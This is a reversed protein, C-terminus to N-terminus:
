FDASGFDYGLMIEPKASGTGAGGESWSTFGLMCYPAFQYSSSFAFVSRDCGRTIEPWSPLERDGRSGVCQILDRDSFGDIRCAHGFEDNERSITAFWKRM